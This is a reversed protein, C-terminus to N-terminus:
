DGAGADNGSVTRRVDLTGGDGAGAVCVRVVSHTVHEAASTRLLAKSRAVLNRRGLSRQVNCLEIARMTYTNRSCSRSDCKTMEICYVDYLPVYVGTAVHIMRCRRRITGRGFSRRWNWLSRTVSSAKYVDVRPWRTWGPRNPHRRGGAWACPVLWGDVSVHVLVLQTHRATHQREHM